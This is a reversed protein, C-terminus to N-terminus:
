HQKLLIVNLRVWHTKGLRQSHRLQANPWSPNIAEASSMTWWSPLTFSLYPCHDSTGKKNDDLSFMEKIEVRSLGKFMKFLEILDHRNRREELTWLGLVNIREEYTKSGLNNVMKSFRHQIREIREFLAEGCKIM